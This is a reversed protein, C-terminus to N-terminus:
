MVEGLQGTMVLEGKGELISVEINLLEGGVETWALGTAIGVDPEHQSRDNRSFKPVGLLKQVQTKEIKKKPREGNSSSAVERAIKRCVGQVERELNRVGAERTYSQIVERIGDLTFTVDKRKLGSEKISRPVLFRRGIQVKEEETYSSIEIVEMRDCLAPPVPHLINATTIFFVESLDFEVELYNDSFHCNQEPDLVELLASAPDGRFDMGMKDVEDLLIVPNKVGVKRMTQILRGPLSGIYTRRHGRIEAEDRMGGLSIRAFKRNTARAISRGLSTKGVGPPGVFCLIPGRSSPNLKRVSLYELIREKPKDLGYHDKELIAEANKLDLEEETAEKWPLELLWELYTRVVTAEPSMAPMSCLRNIERDAKERVEPPFGVTDLKERFEDIDDLAEGERGLEKQIVKIQEALYYERQSKEMQGRVEDKIEKELGLLDNEEELFAALQSLRHHVNSDELIQQKLEVKVYLHAAIQDSLQSADELSLISLLNEKPIRKQLRAYAEFLESVYRVAAKLRPSPRYVIPIPEIQARLPSADGGGDNIELLRQRSGGELLVKITGDPLRVLQLIQCLTGVPFLDTPQPDELAPDTQAVAILPINKEAALEVAAASKQRGIFLPAVM